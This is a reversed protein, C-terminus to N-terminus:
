TSGWPPRQASLAPREGGGGGVVAPPPEGPEPSYTFQVSFWPPVSLSAHHVVVKRAGARRRLLEETGRCFTVVAARGGTARAIRILHPAIGLVAGLEAKAVDYHEGHLARGVVQGARRLRSQRARLFFAFVFALLAVVAFLITPRM